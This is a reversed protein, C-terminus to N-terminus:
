PRDAHRRAPRPERTPCTRADHPLFDITYRPQDGAAPMRAALPSAAEPDARLGARSAPRQRAAAARGDDLYFDNLGFTKQYVLRQSARTSPSCRPRNHNMFHRGVVDSRNALGDRRASCSRPLSRVAGAALVVIGARSCAQARRGPRYTVGDIRRRRRRPCGRRAAGTILSVNPHAAGACPAPRPTSRARAPTPFPTGPRAAAPSGASSTSALRCRSRGCGSRAGLRERVAAIAPEDPVPRIRIPGRM